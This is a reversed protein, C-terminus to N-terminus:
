KLFLLSLAILIQGIYYLSLNTIRLSFRSKEGFTNLILVIDSVLFLAAGLAYIMTFSSPDSILNSIAACNMLVIAGIYFIGFIKFAKGVTVKSFIWRLLFYALAAGILVPVYWLKARGLLAVLYLVHGILFVFIGVLFIKKGAKEFVFRLNLLIDGAMGFILGAIVQNTFSGGKACSIGLLVFGLSALGKLIVAPVYKEQHEVLIFCAQLIIGAIIYVWM